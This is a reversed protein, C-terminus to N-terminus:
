RKRAEAERLRAIRTRVDAVQPQLEPDADRWLRVFEEYNAIARAPDGKAEYLEGRRRASIPIAIPNQLVAALVQVPNKLREYHVLASDPENAKDFARALRLETRSWPAPEVNGSDSWTAQRFAVIADANRGEALAIEGRAGQLDGWRILREERTAAREFAGLFAKAKDSRGLQAYAIALSLDPRDLVPLQKGVNASVISDLQRVGADETGRLVSWYVVDAAASAVPDDRFRTTDEILTATRSAQLARRLRGHTIALNATSRAATARVPGSPNRVQAAVYSGASDFLGAALLMGLEARLTVLTLGFQQRLIAASRAAEDLKGLALQSWWRNTYLQIVIPKGALSDEAIQADLVSEAAAYEGLFNLSLGRNNQSLTPRAAYLEVGQRTSIERVYYAEVEASEDDTLRQRFRYAAANAAAIESRPAQINFGYAALKRWAAAFTSDERLAARMYNFGARYDGKADGAELGRSYERLAALSSTTARELAPARAVSRLSEGIRSRMDKAIKDVAQLIDAAGNAGNQITFLPTGSDARVLHATIMFGPGVPSVNGTVILPIGDRLALM